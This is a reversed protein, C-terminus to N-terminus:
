RDSSVSLFLVNGKLPVFYGNLFPNKILRKTSFAPLKFYYFGDSNKVCHKKVKEFIQRRMTKNNIAMSNSIDKENSILSNMVMTDHSNLTILAYICFPNENEDASLNVKIWTASTGSIKLGLIKNLENINRSFTEKPQRNSCSLLILFFVISSFFTTKAM